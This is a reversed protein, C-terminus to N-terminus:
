SGDGPLQGASNTMLCYINQDPNVGSPLGHGSWLSETPIIAYYLYHSGKPNAFPAILRDTWCLQRAMTTLQEIGPYPVPNNPGYNSFSNSVFSTQYYM